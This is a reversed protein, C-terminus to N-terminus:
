GVERQSIRSVSFTGGGGTGSTGWLDIPFDVPAVTTTTYSGAMNVSTAYMSGIFSGSYFGVQRPTYLMTPVSIQTSYLSISGDGADWRGLGPFDTRVSQRASPVIFWLHPKTGDAAVFTFQQLNIETSVVVIDTSIVVKTQSTPNSSIGDKCKTGDVITPATLTALATAWDRNKCIASGSSVVMPSFGPWDAADYGYDQWSLLLAPDPGTVAVEAQSLKVTPKDPAPPAPARRVTGAVRSSADRPDLSDGAPLILDGGVEGSNPLYVDGGAQLDDVVKGYNNVEGSAFVRAKAVGNYDINLAGAVTIDGGVPGYVYSRSTGAALMAGGVKGNYDLTIAGACALDGGIKGYVTTRDTGAITVDGTVSANYDFVVDDGAAFDGTITGYLYSTSSGAAITDGGISGNYDLLLSGLTKLQGSVAGYVYTRSTSSSTLNGGIKAGYYLTVPGGAAFSGGVSGYVYSRGTGAAAVSGRIIGQYDVDVTGSATLNGHVAGQVVADGFATVNGTVTCGNDATFNGDVVVNVSMQENCTFNGDIVTLDGPKSESSEVPDSNYYTTTSFFTLAGYKNGYSHSSQFSFVAEVTVSRNGAASGVSTFTVTDTGADCSVQYQPASTSTITGTCGEAKRFAALAVAVGADAAARAQATSKGSALSSSTNSVIAALTLAFLTLVLMMVLVSVLASGQDDRRLRVLM